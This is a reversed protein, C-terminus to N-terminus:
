PTQVYTYRLMNTTKKQIRFNHRPSRLFFLAATFLEANASGSHSFAAQPPTVTVPVLALVRRMVSKTDSVSVESQSKSSFSSFFLLSAKLFLLPFVLANRFYVENSYFNNEINKHKEVAKRYKQAYDLSDNESKM